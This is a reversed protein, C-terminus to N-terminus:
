RIPTNTIKSKRGTFSVLTILGSGFLWVAAPVPVASINVNGGAFSLPTIQSGGSAWPNLAYETLGLISSSGGTGIAQFQISAVTFDGTVSSFANVAIGDVTGGVNDITGTSTAFDWVLDDITVSLVNLVSPDFSLNVGGGDVIDVFGTGIIELSFIDNELVSINTFDLTILSAHLQHSFLLISAILSNKIIKMM